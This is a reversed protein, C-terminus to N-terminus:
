GSDRDVTPGVESRTSHVKQDTEDAKISRSESGTKLNKVSQGHRETEHGNHFTAFCHFKKLKETLM